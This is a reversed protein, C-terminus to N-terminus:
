QGAAMDGPQRFSSQAQRSHPRDQQLPAPAPEMGLSLKLGQATDVTGAEDDDFLSAEAADVAVIALDNGTADARDSAGGAPQQQQQIQQEQQQQQSHQQSPQESYPKDALAPAPQPARKKAAASPLAAMEKRFLEDNSAMSALEGNPLLLGGESTMNLMTMPIGAPARVFKLDLDPENRKPCDHQWHQGQAGCKRCWYHDPPRGGRGYGRGGRGRGRAAAERVTRDQESHWQEEQGHLAAEIRAQEDDLAAKRKAAQEEYVDDGFDDADQASPAIAGPAATNAHVTAPVTTLGVYSASASNHAATPGGRGTTAAHRGKAAPIRKVVVSSNRPLQVSDDKYVQKTQPDSLELEAGGDVGLGKKDAILKKIEGVSVYHGDFSVNDYTLASRFKFHVVGSM